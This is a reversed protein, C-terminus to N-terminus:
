RAFNWDPREYRERTLRATARHPWPNLPDQCAWAQQLAPRLQDVTIPLNILFEEHSRRQRYMPQRPPMTLCAAIHTLDAAYLLTGHYLLSDRRCRLSNGSFKRGDLTLDSTGLLQVPLGLSRLAQQIRSLVFHHARDVVNLEPRELTSLIVSYMLCGPGLVVSAGGSCRRFIPTGTRECAERDVEEAVRSARGVVVAPRKCEWVRLVDGSSAFEDLLAEDLALNEAVSPLTLDLFKM